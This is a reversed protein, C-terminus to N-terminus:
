IIKFKEDKATFVVMIQTFNDEGKHGQLAIGQRGLYRLCRIAYLLYSREKARKASLNERTLEAIDKCKLVEIHYVIAIKHCETSM